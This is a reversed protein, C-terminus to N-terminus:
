LLFCPSRLLLHLNSLEQRHKVYVREPPPISKQRVAEDNGLDNANKSRLEANM